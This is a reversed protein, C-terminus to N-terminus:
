YGLLAETKARKHRWIEHEKQTNYACQVMSIMDQTVHVFRADLDIGPCDRPMDAELDDHLARLRKIIKEAFYDPNPADVLDGGEQSERAELFTSIQADMRTTFADIDRLGGDIVDRNDM